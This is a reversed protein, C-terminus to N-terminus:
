CCGVSSCKVFFAPFVTNQVLWAKIHSAATVIFLIVTVVRELYHFGICPMAFSGQTCFSVAHVLITDATCLMQHFFFLSARWQTRSLRYKHASYIAVGILYLFFLYLCIVGIIYQISEAGFAFALGMLALIAPVFVVFMTILFGLFLEMGTGTYELPENNLRVHNWLKKRVETKGWFHYIFLTIIKLFFVKFGLGIYNSGKGAWDIDLPQGLQSNAQDTM